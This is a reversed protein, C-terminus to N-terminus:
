QPPGPQQWTGGPPPPPAAPPQQPPVGWQQEPAVPTAAPPFGSPAAAVPVGAPPQGGSPSRRRRRSVLIVILGLVVGAVAVAIGILATSGGAASVDRGVAIVVDEDESEVTLTYRGTDEIEVSRIVEGRFGAVDYEIGSERRLRVNDDRRDVLDLTVDPEGRVDYDRDDNECSGDIEGIEGEYELYLYFTGTEDFDLETFCGAPARAMKTVADEEASGGAGLLLFGGILGGVILLLGLILGVAGGRKRPPTSSAPAGPVLGAPPQYGEPTTPPVGPQYSM